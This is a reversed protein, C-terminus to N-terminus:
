TLRPPLCLGGVGDFVFRREAELVTMAREGASMFAHGDNCYQEYMGELAVLARELRKGEDSVKASQADSWVSKLFERIELMKDVSTGDEDNEKGIKWDIIAFPFKNQFDAIMEEPTNYPM